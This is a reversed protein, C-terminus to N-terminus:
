LSEEELLRLFEETLEGEPPHSYRQEYFAEFLERPTLKKRSTFVGGAEASETVLRLTILDPYSQRLAKNEAFTLPRPLKLTLEAYSGANEALLAHAQEVSEASLRVLPRYATLPLFTQAEIGNKGGELLYVGKDNDEDFHYPMISGPYYANKAHQRRHIHGLAAYHCASFTGASVAKAGGAEIERQGSEAKSGALFLHGLALNLSEPGFLETNLWRQVKEDYSLEKEAVAFSRDDSPYPLLAVAAREGDKEFVLAGPGAEVARVAFNREPLEFLDRCGGSIFINHRKALDRAACLRQPDDHNGAVVVVARRGGASLALVSDYFLEEAAAGPTYVDFIDGAALVLDVDHREALECLERMVLKQEELRDRGELKKGLHWDATHLLKMNEECHRCDSELTM